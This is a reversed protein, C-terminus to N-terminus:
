TCGVLYIQSFIKSSPKFDTTERRNESVLYSIAFLKSLVLFRWFIHGSHPIRGNPAQQDWVEFIFPYHLVSTDLYPSELLTVKKIFAKKAAM